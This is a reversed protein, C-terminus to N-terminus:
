YWKTKLSLIVLDRLMTNIRRYLQRDFMLPFQPALIMDGNTSRIEEEFYNLKYKELM